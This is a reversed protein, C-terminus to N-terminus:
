RAQDSRRRTTPRAGLVCDGHDAGTEGSHRRHAPLCRDRRMSAQRSADAAGSIGSLSTIRACTKATSRRRCSRAPTPWPCSGCRHVTSRHARRGARQRPRIGRGRHEEIRPVATALMGVLVQRAIGAQHLGSALPLAPGITSAAQQACPLRLNKSRARILLAGIATSATSRMSTSNAMSRSILPMGGCSRIRWSRLRGSTM